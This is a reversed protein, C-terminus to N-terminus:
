NIQIGAIITEVLQLERTNEATGENKKNITFSCILATNRKGTYWYYNVFEEGEQITYVKYFAAKLEGLSIQKAEENEELGSKLLDSAMDRDVNSSRLPTIRLNGTWNKSNFFAYTGEDGDDYEDWDDPLSMTFWNDESIFKRLAM